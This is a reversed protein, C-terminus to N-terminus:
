LWWDPLPFTQTEAPDADGDDLFGELTQASSTLKLYNFIGPVSQIAQMVSRVLRSNEKLNLRFETSLQPRGTQSSNSQTLTLKPPHQMTLLRLTQKASVLSAMRKQAKTRSRHVTIM